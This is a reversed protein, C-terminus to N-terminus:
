NRVIVSVGDPIVTIKENKKGLYEDAMKIAEDVSKAYDMQMDRVMQEPANTVMIVKYKLLIRCLIQSEWQDAVTEEMPTDLFTKMIKNKDKENAFTDYLSQGGHGASCDTVMIIVGGEKCTAEAATMGKVSQYINQDM